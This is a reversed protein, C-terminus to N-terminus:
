TTMEGCIEPYDEIARFQDAYTSWNTAGKYNDVLAAPVYIYGTGNAIKTGSLATTACLTAIGDSKRLIITDLASDEAFLYGQLSAVLGMDAKQLVSCRSLAYTGASTLKPFSVTTLKRCQRFAYSGVSTVEPFNNKNLVLCNYFAYTGISKLNDVSLDTLATCGYFAYGGITALNPFDVGKLTTYNYCIYQSITKINENQFETATREVFSVFVDETGSVSINAIETAMDDLTLLETGGTKERIADAIATMKENVSM